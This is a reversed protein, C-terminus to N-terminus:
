ADSATAIGRAPRARLIFYAAVTILMSDIPAITTLTLRFHSGLATLGIGIGCAALERPRWRPPESGTEVGSPQGSYFDCLYVSAVPPICISLTVMYPVLVDSVGALGLATGIVGAALALVWRPYRTFITSFLLSSAYLNFTNMTWASFLLILFAVLGIDLAMMIPVLDNHGTVLGPLGALLLILPSGIAFTIFSASAAVLPTRAFRCIDPQLLAGIVVTGVVIAIGNSFDLAHTAPVAMVAATGYRSLVIWVLWALLVIKLPTTITSLWDLARFGVITTIIVLVCGVLMWGHEGILAAHPGLLQAITQGFMTAIVGFWGLVALSIFGNVLKGGRTGFAGMILMYTSLRSRAGAIASPVSVCILVLGGAVSVICADRFGLSTMLRAGTLFSTLAVKSGTLVLVLRLLGITSADSVRSRSFDETAANFTM